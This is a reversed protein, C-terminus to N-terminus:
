TWILPIPKLNLNQRIKQRSYKGVINQKPLVIYVLANCANIEILEKM